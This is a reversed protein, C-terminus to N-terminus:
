LVNASCSLWAHLSPLLMTSVLQHGGLRSASDAPKIHEKEPNQSIEVFFTATASVLEYNIKPHRKDRFTLSRPAMAKRNGKSRCHWENTKTSHFHVGLCWAVIVISIHYMRYQLWQEVSWRCVSNSTGYPKYTCSNTPTAISIVVNIASM